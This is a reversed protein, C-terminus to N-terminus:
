CFISETYSLGVRCEDCHEGKWDDDCPEIEARIIGHEVVPNEEHVKEALDRLTTIIVAHTESSSKPYWGSGDRNQRADLMCFIREALDWSIRKLEEISKLRALQFRRPIGKKTEISHKVIKM